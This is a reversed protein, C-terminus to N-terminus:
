PAENQGSSPALDSNAFAEVLEQPLSMVIGPRISCGIGLQQHDQGDGHRAEAIGRHPWYGEHEVHERGTQTVDEKSPVWSRPSDM